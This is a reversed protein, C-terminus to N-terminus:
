QWLMCLGVTSTATVGLGTQGSGGGFPQGVQLFTLPTAGVIAESITNGIPVETLLAACNYASVSPVPTMYYVPVTYSNGGFLTTTLNFPMGISANAGLWAGSTAVTPLGNIPMYQATLYSYGQYNGSQSGIGVVSVASNAIFNISDGTPNGSTDNSRFMIFAGLCGTPASGVGQAKWALGVYGLTMNVIFRSTFSTTTSAPLGANCLCVRSSLNGTLTGAGNSGQGITIFMQPTTLTTNGTGYELKIVVPSGSTLTAVNVQFGSGSGGLSANSASLADCVNYGTGAATITVSTVVGSTCVVTAQAGTGTGGTLPVATFTHTVGGNYGSGGVLANTTAIPGLSLTDTYRFISYGAATNVTAQRTVTSTNIQGTDNTQSLTLTSTFTTIIEAVWARFAADTTQDIVSATSTTNAM